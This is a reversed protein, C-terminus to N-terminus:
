FLTATIRFHTNRTIALIPLLNPALNCGCRGWTNQLVHCQPQSIFSFQWSFPIVGSDFPPHSVSNVFGLKRGKTVCKRRIEKESSEYSFFGRKFEYWFTQTDPSARVSAKGEAGSGAFGMVRPSSSSRILLFDGLLFCTRSVPKPGQSQSPQGRLKDEWSGTHGQFSWRGLRNAKRM